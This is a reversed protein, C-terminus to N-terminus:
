RISISERWRCWSPAATRRRALIDLTTDITHTWRQAPWTCLKAGDRLGEGDEILRLTVLRLSDPNLGSHRERCPSANLSMSCAPQRAAVIQCVGAHVARDQVRREVIM